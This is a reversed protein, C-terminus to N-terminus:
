KSGLWVFRRGRSPFGCPKICVGDVRSLFAVLTQVSAQTQLRFLVEDGEPIQALEPAVWSEFDQDGVHAGEDDLEVRPDDSYRRLELDFGATRSHDPFSREVVWRFSSIGVLSRVKELGVRVQQADLRRDVWLLPISSSAPVDDPDGIDDVADWRFLLDGQWLVEDLTMVLADGTGDVPTGALTQPLAVKSPAQLRVAPWLTLWSETQNLAKMDAGSALVAVAVTVGVLWGAVGVGAARPPASRFTLQGLRATTPLADSGDQLIRRFLAQARRAQRGQFRLIPASLPVAVGVLLVLAATSRLAGALARLHAHAEAAGQAVSPTEVAVLGALAGGHEVLAWALPLPVLAGIAAWPWGSPPPENVVDLLAKRAALDKAADREEWRRPAGVPAPGDGRAWRNWRAQTLQERILMSGLLLAIGLISLALM